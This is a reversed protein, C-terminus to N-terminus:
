RAMPLSARRRALSLSRLPMHEWSVLGSWVPRQRGASHKKELSSSSGSGVVVLGDASIGTAFSNVGQPLFGLGFGGTSTWLFAERGRFSVGSGAVVTGDGSVATAESENFFGGPPFGLGVLGDAQTWRFAEVAFRAARGSSSSGVIVSGDASVAGAVSQPNPQSSADPLLGLGVMGTAATWRFAEGLPIAASPIQGVVTSGDASVGRATLGSPPSSAGGLDGLPTFYAFAQAPAGFMVILIAPNGILQAVLQPILLFRM